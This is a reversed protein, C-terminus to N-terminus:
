RRVYSYGVEKGYDQFEFESEFIRKERDIAKDTRSLLSSCLIVGDRKLLGSLNDKALYLKKVDGKFLELINSVMVVDYRKGLDVEEYLDINYFDMPFDVVSGISNTTKFLVKGEPQDHYFLAELNTGMDVHKKWFAFADAEEKSSVEVKDLLRELWNHDNDAIPYPYMKNMYKLTWQRLYYYYLTLPNKDFSDVKKAGMYRATYVQDSSALVTLVEKDLFDIQRYMDVLNENTEFYINGYGEMQAGNVIARSAMFDKILGM